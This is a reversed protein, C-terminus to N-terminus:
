LVGTFGLTSARHGLAVFLQDPICQGAVLAGVLFQQRTM